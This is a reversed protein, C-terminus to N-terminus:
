YMVIGPPKGGRSNLEAWRDREPRGKGGREHALFRQYLMQITRATECTPLQLVCSQPHNPQYLFDGPNLSWSLFHEEKETTLLLYRDGIRFIIEEGIGDWTYITSQLLVEGPFGYVHDLAWGFDCPVGEWFDQSSFGYRRAYKAPKWQGFTNINDKGWRSVRSSALEIDSMRYHPAPLKNLPLPELPFTTTIPPGARETLDISLRPPRIPRESGFDYVWLEGFCNGIAVVGLADDFDISAVGWIAPDEMGAFTTSIQQMTTDGSFTPPLAGQCLRLHPNKCYITAEAASIWLARQGSDGVRLGYFMPYDEGVPVPDGPNLIRHFPAELILSQHYDVQGAGPELTILELGRSSLALFHLTDPSRGPPACREVESISPTDFNTNFVFTTTQAYVTDYLEIASSRIIILKGQWKTMLHPVTRRSPVDLGDPQPIIDYITRSKWDYIHPVNSGNRLACGVLSGSLMLVYTSGECRALECFVNQGSVKCLTLIHVAASEPGLGLALVMSGDQVEVRGTRVRGPLYAHVIGNMSDPTATSLDYCSIKSETEDSSAVFLWNGAVLKLWTVSLSTNYNFLTAPSIPTPDREWKETFHELRRVLLELVSTELEEYHGLYSPMLGNTTLVRRILTIWLSRVRTVVSFVRSVQRLTQITDVPLELCVLLLIDNNLQALAM